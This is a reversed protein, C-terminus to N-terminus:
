FFGRSFMYSFFLPFESDGTTQANFVEGPTGITIVKGDEYVIVKDAISYAEFVDHTVLIVPVKFEKRIDRLFNRMEFRLEADLSSFPEDLLLVAPGRILARALAVRQKQGGSIESPFKDELGDLHFITVIDYLRKDRLQKDIGTAGFLINNTVNMHPFLALDQFVYGISRQQPPLWIKQKGDYFIKDGSSVMGDDPQILGAILQLTMSKGSGSPGFIVALEDGVEWEADLNFGNVKKRLKVSLAM